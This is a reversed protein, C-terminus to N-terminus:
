ATILGLLILRSKIAGKTRKHEKAIKTITDGSRFENILKDDEMTLWPKCNNEPLNTIREERDKLKSLERAAVNLAYNIEGEIFLSDQLLVTGDIPNIGQSLSKIIRIYKEVGM